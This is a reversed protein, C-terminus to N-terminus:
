YNLSQNQSIKLPAVLGRAKTVALSLLQPHEELRDGGAELFEAVLKRAYSGYAIGAAEINAARLKAVTSANTGGALQVFGKPLQLSLVKQCLHLAARTTGNGIDGSMPRGDTQWILQSPFPHMCDLLALLYAKLNDCDPFSVAVLKLKSILPALRQWLKGFEEVRWPQTHIEIADIPTSAINELAYTQERTHIIQVPCLPLCRGCGYCLEDKVGSFFVNSGDFENFRIAQTPCVNACPRDCTSPCYAADFEAKRFHPDEGDNISVMVWPSTIYREESGWNSLNALNDLNLAVAIGERAANIAAPDAAMDICDAGALTYVLALNRIAPLHQYSAGCILKFWQSTLLSDLPKSSKNM